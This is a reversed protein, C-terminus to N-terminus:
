RHNSPDTVPATPWVRRGRLWTETVRVEDILHPDVTFIDRDLVVFDADRGEEITGVNSATTCAAARGTYLELAQGVTVAEKQGIDAGNHARRLVAAQVSPFPNDADVWATAPADSALATFPAREYFSRIPYAIEFQAPSLNTEYSGYEAFLFITHSVLGFRMRAAEVRDLMAPSVLTCHEIRISPRDTLWPEDDAFTDIVLSIAADGMAHIAAQVGNRRAWAVADAMDAVSVTPYGHDCTGPYPDVTWATRNSYAGDTIVKVGAVRVDGTRDDDTLDPLGHTPDWKWFLGVRQAFGAEAARRFTQLSDPTHSALLDDLTTLGLRGYHEGLAVIRRVWEDADPVPKLRTVAEIAAFEELVGNPTGDPFRGFRAGDPDPTDATIGALDLLFSNCVATHVDARLCYVPQTTSVKDLDHRTPTGEPYGSENHGFGEVWADPGKGLNPHTGLVELMEAVSGVRPQLLVVSDVLEALMSPHQHVDLLGPLVTAGRLDVSDSERLDAAAGVWTFRGDQVTFAEAFEQPGTGTFVKANTFSTM